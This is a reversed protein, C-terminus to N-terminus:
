KSSKVENKVDKVDTEIRQIAKEMRTFKEYLIGLDKQTIRTNDINKRWEELDSVKADVRSFYRVYSWLTLAISIIWAINKVWFNEKKAPTMQLTFKM